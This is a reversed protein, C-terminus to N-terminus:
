LEGPQLGNLPEKNGVTTGTAPWTGRRQRRHNGLCVASCTQRDMLGQRRRALRPRHGHRVKISFFMPGLEALWEPDVATVCQMYEKTTFVLEHYVIYDPTYGLGFLASTPHLFCPMGSRCNVYEGIGKLKAAQPPPRLLVDAPRRPPLQVRPSPRMSPPRPCVSLRVGLIALHVPLMHWVQHFYASCIAKRVVDWDSGCSNIAIKQQTMIDLLQARVEKAKRLGAAHFQL